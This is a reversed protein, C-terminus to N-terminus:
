AFPENVPAVFPNGREDHTLRGVPRKSDHPFILLAETELAWQQWRRKTELTVLPEVDYATMWGLKEFHVAYSSLDCTFLAHQGQSEIRVSMHGPTHGPTVVCWVGPVIEMDGDLLRMQGHDMLVQWNLAFYTGATRENPHMADEYERRQVVHEANLFTAVVSAGDEALRTNGSCHDAHLHTNIVLTIDDPRLGLRALAAILDGRPRTLNWIARRKEDMKTGFGTDALIYHRATQILLCVTTMPVLFDADPEFYRRYLARPVLGFPGGPDVRTDADNIIHLKIDGVQIM